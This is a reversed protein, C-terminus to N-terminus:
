AGELFPDVRFHFPLLNKGKPTSGTWFPALVIKFINDGKSFTDM